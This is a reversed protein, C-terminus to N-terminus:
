MHRDREFCTSSELTVHELGTARLLASAPVVAGRRLVLSLLHPTQIISLVADEWSTRRGSTNYVSFPRPTFTVLRDYIPKEDMPDSQGLLDEEELQLDLEFHTVRKLRRLISEETARDNQVRYTFNRVHWGIRPNNTVIAAFEAVHDPPEEGAGFFRITPRQYLTVTKFIKQQCGEVFTKAVLCLNKVDKLPDPRVTKKPKPWTKDWKEVEATALTILEDTVLAVIETPIQLIVMSSSNPDRFFPLALAALIVLANNASLASRLILVLM